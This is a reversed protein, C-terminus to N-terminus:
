DKINASVGENATHQCHEHVEPRGSYSHWSESREQDWGM